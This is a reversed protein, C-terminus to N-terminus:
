GFGSILYGFGFIAFALTPHERRLRAQYKLLPQALNEVGHFSIPVAELQILGLLTLLAGIVLRIIRGALSTFTVKAFLPGGGLAIAAGALTLFLTAGVSLAAAFSFPRGLHVRKEQEDIGIERSLLSLLLPFSCPSFFSAIGAAAALILLGSGTVSPLDFRPYVAYGLYGALALLLVSLILLVYWILGNNQSTNEAM